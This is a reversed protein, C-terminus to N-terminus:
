GSPAATHVPSPIRPVALDGASLHEVNKDTRPVALDGASLYEVNKDTRPVALDGALLSSPGVGRIGLGTDRTTTPTRHGPAHGTDRTGLELVQGPRPLEGLDTGALVVPGREAADAVFRAVADRGQADLGSLPEDLLLVAPELLFAFAIRLRQKMGTSFHEVPGRASGLGVADLRGRLDRPDPAFGAARCFFALNEEATLEPYFFLDPGSWGIGSRREETSLDRGDREVRVTGATPRLLGALIKLLTTKGTGNPGIVALVGRELAFSVESFLPPGSFSKSLGLGEIRASAV